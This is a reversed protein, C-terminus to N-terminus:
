HERYKSVSQSFDVKIRKDDILVGDMNKYALECTRRDGFEIFGYCLSRGTEKNRVIEVSLVEGFRSFITAIDKSKTVPNLKCIFLVRESPKIGVGPLDGMVQLSLEKRRIDLYIKQKESNQDYTILLDEPLRIDRLPLPIDLQILNPPDPFPDQIIHMGRIRIDVLPRYDGDIATANILDLTPFSNPRIVGFWVVDKTDKMNDHLTLRTQSGILDLSNDSRRTIRMGLYGKPVQSSRRDNNTSSKTCRVLQSQIQGSRELQLVGEISLNSVRLDNRDEFGVLPNGFDAYANPHINYLCQNQYINSKCLKLFNFSEVEFLKYHLDVILDGITTEILVSM